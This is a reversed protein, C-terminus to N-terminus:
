PCSHAQQASLAQSVRLLGDGCPRRRRAHGSRIFYDDWLDTQNFVPSLVDTLPPLLGACPGAPAPSTPLGTPPTPLCARRALTGPPPHLEQVGRRCALSSVRTWRRSRCSAALWPRRAASPPALSSPPPALPCRTWRWKTQLCPLPCPPPSLSPHWGFAGLRSGPRIRPGLAANWAYSYRPMPRRNLEWQGGGGTGKGQGGGLLQNTNMYEFLMPDAVGSDSALLDQLLRRGGAGHQAAAEHALSAASGGASGAATGLSRSRSDSRGGGLVTDRLRSALSRLRRGIVATGTPTSPAPALMPPPPTLGPSPSPLLEAPSPAGLDPSLGAAPGPAEAGPGPPPAGEPAGSVLPSPSPLLSPSPGPAGGPAGSVLPPSLEEPAPALVPSPSIAPAPSPAAAGAPIHLHLGPQACACAPAARSLLSMWPCM